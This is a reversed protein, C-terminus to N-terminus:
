RRRFGAHLSTRVGPQKSAEYRMGQKRTPRHQPAAHENRAYAAMGFAMLLDDHGGPPHDPRGKDDIRFQELEMLTDRHRIIPVPTKLLQYLNEILAGRSGEQMDFGPREKEKADGKKSLVKRHYIRRGPWRIRMLQNVYEEGAGTWEPVILGNNYARALWATIYALEIRGVKGHWVAVQELRDLRNLLVQIASFDDGEGSSSDGGVIYKEGPVAGKWVHLPGGADERLDFVPKEKMGDIVTDVQLIRARQPAPVIIEVDSGDLKRVRHFNISRSTFVPRGSGRFSEMLDAPYEQMFTEHGSMGIKADAELDEIKRRRWLLKQVVMDPTLFTVGYEPAERLIRKGLDEEEPELPVELCDALAREGPTWARRLDDPLPDRAGYALELWWPLFILEYSGKGEYAQMCAWYWWDGVGESTSELIISSEFMPLEPVSEKLGKMVKSPNPWSPIETAHVHHITNGRGIGTTKGATTIQILSGTAFGLERGTKNTTIAQKPLRPEDEELMNGGIGKVMTELRMHMPESLELDHLMLMMMRDARTQGIHVFRGLGWTTIGGQRFKPILARVPRDRAMMWLRAMVYKQAVNFAMRVPMTTQKDAVILPAHEAYWPYDHFRAEFWAREEPTAASIGSM